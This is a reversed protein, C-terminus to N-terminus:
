TTLSPWLLSVWSAQKAVWEYGIHGLCQSKCAVPSGSRPLLTHVPCTFHIQTLCIVCKWERRRMYCSHTGHTTNGCARGGPGPDGYQASITSHCHVLFPYGDSLAENDGLGSPFSAPFPFSEFLSSHSREPFSTGGDECTLAVQVWKEVMGPKERGVLIPTM